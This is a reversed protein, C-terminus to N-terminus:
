KEVEKIKGELYLKQKYRRKERMIKNLEEKSKKYRGDKRRERFDAKAKEYIEEDIEKTEYEPEGYQDYGTMVKTILPRNEERAKKLKENYGSINRVGVSSMLRYRDEMEAVVWRLSVVAKQPETVVPTLLHPIGEYVSLELRKPDIM